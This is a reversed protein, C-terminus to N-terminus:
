SCEDFVIWVWLPMLFFVISHSNNKAVLMVYTQGFIHKFHVLKILLIKQAKKGFIDDTKM